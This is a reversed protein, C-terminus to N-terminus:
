EAFRDLIVCLFLAVVSGFVVWVGNDIIGTIGLTIGALMSWGSFLTLISCVIARDYNRRVVDGRNDRFYLDRKSRYNVNYM